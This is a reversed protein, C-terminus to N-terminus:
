RTLGSELVCSSVSLWDSNTVLWVTALRSSSCSLPPLCPDPTQVSRRGARPEPPVRAGGWGPGRQATHGPCTWKRLVFSCPYM